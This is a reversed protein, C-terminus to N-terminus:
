TTNSPRAPTTRPKVGYASKRFVQQIRVSFGKRDGPGPIPYKPDLEGPAPVVKDFEDTLKNTKPGGIAIVANDKIFEAESYWGKHTVIVGRRFAYPAGRRDIEDRL